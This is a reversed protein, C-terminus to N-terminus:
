IGSLQMHYQVVHPFWTWCQLHHLGGYPMMESTCSFYTSMHRKGSM